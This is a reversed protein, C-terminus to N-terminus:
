PSAGGPEFGAILIASEDVDDVRLRRLKDLVALATCSKLAM